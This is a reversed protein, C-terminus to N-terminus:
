PATPAVSMTSAIDFVLTAPLAAVYQAIAEKGAPSGSMPDAHMKNGDPAHLINGGGRLVRARLEGDPLSVCVGPPFSFETTGLPMGALLMALEIAPGSGKSCWGTKAVLDRIRASKGRLAATATWDATAKEMYGAVHERLLDAIETTTKKAAM